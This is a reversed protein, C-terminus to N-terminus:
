TRCCPRSREQPRCRCGPGGSGRACSGASAHSRCGLCGSWRSAAAKRSPPWTPGPLRPRSKSRKRRRCRLGGPPARRRLGAGGCCRCSKSGCSIAISARISTRRIKSGRLDRSTPGPTFNPARSVWCHGRTGDGRSRLSQRCAPSRDCGEEGCGSCCCPRSSITRMIRRSCCKALRLADPWRPTARRARSLKLARGLRPARTWGSRCWRCGSNWRRCARVTRGM